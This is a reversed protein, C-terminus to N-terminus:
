SYKVYTCHKLLRMFSWAYPNCCQNLMCLYVCRSRIHLGVKTLLERECLSLSTNTSCFFHKAKQLFLLFWMSEKSDAVCVCESWMGVWVSKMLRAEYHNLNHLPFICEFCSIISSVSLSASLSVSVSLFLSLCVCVHVCVLVWLALQLHQNSFSNGPRSLDATYKCLDTLIVPDFLSMIVVQGESLFFESNNGRWYVRSYVCRSPCM